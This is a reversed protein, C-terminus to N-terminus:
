DAASLLLLVVLVVILFTCELLALRFVVGATSWTVFGVLGQAERRHLCLRVFHAM